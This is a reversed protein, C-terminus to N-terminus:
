CFFLESFERDNGQRQVIYVCGSHINLKIYFAVNMQKQKNNYPSFLTVVSVSPHKLGLCKTNVSTSYQLGDHQLM